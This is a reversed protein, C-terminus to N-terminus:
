VSENPSFVTFIPGASGLIILQKQYIMLFASSLFSLFYIAREAVKASRALNVCAFYLGTLLKASCALFVM